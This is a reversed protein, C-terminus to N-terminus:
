STLDFNQSFLVIKLTWLHVIISKLYYMKERELIQIFKFM